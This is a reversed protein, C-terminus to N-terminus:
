LMPMCLGSGGPNFLAWLYNLDPKPLHLCSECQQNYGPGKQHAAPISHWLAPQIGQGQDQQVGDQLRDLPPLWFHIPIVNFWLRFRSSSKFLLIHLFFHLQVFSNYFTFTFGVDGIKKSRKHSEYEPTDLISTFKSKVREYQEKYKWQPLLATKLCVSTLFVWLM